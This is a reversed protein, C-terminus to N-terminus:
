QLQLYPYGENIASDIAWVKEFDWGINVYPQMTKMEDTKLAINDKQHVKISFSSTRLGKKTAALEKNWINSSINTDNIQGYSTIRSVLGFSKPAKNKNVAYCNSITGRNNIQGVLGGVKKATGTINGIYYSDDIDAGYMSGVLGGVIANNNVNHFNVKSSCNKITSQNASGVLGGALYFIKPNINLLYIDGTVSCGEVTSQYAQAVLTAGAGYVFTKSGELNLNSVKSDSITGFFGIMQRWILDDHPYEPKNIYINKIAHGRGDYDGHFIKPHDDLHMSIHGIPSFGTGSNWNMTDTADIDATQVFHYKTDIDGWVSETESLWRLNELSSIQFPNELSGANSDAFNSPPVATVSWLNVIGVIFLLVPFIRM